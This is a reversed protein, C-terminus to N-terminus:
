RVLRLHKVGAGKKKPAERQTMDNTETLTAQWPREDRMRASM